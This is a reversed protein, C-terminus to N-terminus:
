IDAARVKGVVVQAFRGQGAAEAEQRALDGNGLIEIAHALVLHLALEPDARSIRLIQYPV